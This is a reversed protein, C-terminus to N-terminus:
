RGGFRWLKRCTEVGGVVGRWNGGREGEEKGRNKRRVEVLVWRVIVPDKEGECDRGIESWVEPLCGGSTVGCIEKRREGERKRWKKEGEGGGSCRKESSVLLSVLVGTTKELGGSWQDFVACGE